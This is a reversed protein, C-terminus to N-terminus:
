QVFLFQKSNLLSWVIRDRGAEGTDVLLPLLKERERENPYRSLFGLYLADLKKVPDEEQEAKLVPLSGRVFYDNILTSNLFTLVQAVNVEANSNNVLERDSQGFESLFHGPQAPSPLESARMAGGKFRGAMSKLERERSKIKNEKKLFEKLARSMEEKPVNNAELQKRYEKVSMRKAPTKKPTSTNILKIDDRGKEEYITTALIMEKQKERLENGELKLKYIPGSKDKYDYKVGDLRMKLKLKSEERKKKYIESEIEAYATVFDAVEEVTHTKMYDHFHPASLKGNYRPAKANSKIYDVNPVALTVFSDWIQEATMRRLVPGTYKFNTFDSLDQDCSERQYVDTNYLVRYFQKMDYNQALMLDSLYAMLEPSAAVTDDKIHDLPEILGAGMVQKWLRNAVVMTFRENDPSVLWDVFAEARAHGSLAAVDKIDGYILKPAVDGKPEANDYQYDHPYQLEKDSIGVRYKYDPLVDKIKKTGEKDVGKDKFYQMLTAMEDKPYETKSKGKNNGRTNIPVRFAAFQFYDKQTWKDFPDNHCQACEMRTGLFVRTTNSMNDLPMGYDRLYYGVAGDEWPLGRASLMSRVLKDYPMNKRIVDKLWVTYYSGAQKQQRSQVRLLDAWFNFQHSIYGESELLADILASRKKRDKSHLFAVAEDGTPVRGIIDLYVRRLFVEDTARPRPEVGNKKWYDALLADVKASAKAHSRSKEVPAVFAQASGAILLFGLLAFTIIKYWYQPMM